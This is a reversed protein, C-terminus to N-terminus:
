AKKGGYYRVIEDIYNDWFAKNIPFRVTQMLCIIQKQKGIRQEYGKFLSPPIRM